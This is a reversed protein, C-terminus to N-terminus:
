MTEEAADKAASSPRGEITRVITSEVLAVARPVARQVVPSLGMREGIFEPQCGILLIPPVEGGLGRLSAIVTELTMSHADAMEDTPVGIRPEIVFLTGAREGRDVTDVVLLLDPKDLLQFALHLARIGIDAVAVGDPLSREALQCAVEVGFGDDGLFINGIGAVLITRTAAPRRAPEAPPQQEVEEPSFFFRHGPQRLLGLYAGPDEELVVSVLFNGELDQEISEVLASKGDLVLDFVDGRARPCLRVRDGKQLLWGGIRLEGVSRDIEMLRWDQENV